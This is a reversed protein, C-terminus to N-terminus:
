GTSSAHERLDRTPCPSPETAPIVANAPLQLRDAIARSACILGPPEGVAACLEDIRDIVACPEVTTAILVVKSARAAGIWAATSDTTGYLLLLGGEPHNGGAVDLTRADLVPLSAGSRAWVTLRAGALAAVLGVLAGEEAATVAGALVLHVVASSSALALLDIIPEVRHLLRPLVDLCIEREILPLSELTRLNSRVIALDPRLETARRVLGLAVEYFGSQYEVLGLMHTADFNTPDVDLVRRYLAAAEIANGSLQAHQAPQMLEPVRSLNAPKPTVGTGVLAAIAGHCEKFRKGSGCPCRENRGVSAQSM